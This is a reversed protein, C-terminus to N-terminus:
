DPVIKCVVEGKRVKEPVRVGVSEGKMAKIVSKHNIEMHNVCAEVEKYYGYILLTDGVSITGDTIKIAAVSIKNYYNIVIGIELEKM